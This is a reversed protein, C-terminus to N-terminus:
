AHLLPIERRVLEIVQEVQQMEKEGSQTPPDLLAGPVRRSGKRQSFDLWPQPLEDALEAGAMEAFVLTWARPVASFLDYGGGGLALWRGDCLEHSLEHVTRAVHAYFGTSTRLHALPDDQYADAGNQNVILDPKFARALAPVLADLAIRFADDGT